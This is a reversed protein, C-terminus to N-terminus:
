CDDSDYFDDIDVDDQDPYMRRRYDEADYCDDCDCDVCDCDCDRRRRKGCEMAVINLNDSINISSMKWCDFKSNSNVFKM